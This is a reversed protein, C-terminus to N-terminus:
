FAETAEILKSRIGRESAAHGADPIMFLRSDPIAKHLQYASVAPCVVDYRGQVIWTPIHRIKHVNELIWNDTEFFGNNIFYHSEIRAFADAFDDQAFKGLNTVDPLLKSTVGEWLTWTKAAQKRIIPSESTLRKYYASILDHRESEPIPKLYEEFAEPFLASAGSQYFWQLETKRLLFIGRLILGSVVSPHQISYVLSLTSGWSGGFVSWKQIGLHRRLKEIDSVLDWTTNERLESFPTSKGCGRQDFLIVRWKTPNFFRRVTPDIGGGPGGHVFLIPKGHPNGVEEYYIQHLDSVQLFGSHYPEIEPFFDHDM